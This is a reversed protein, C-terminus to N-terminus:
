ITPSAAEATASKGRHPSRSSGRGRGSGRGMGRGRSPAGGGSSFAGRAQGHASGGRGRGRGAAAPAHITLSPIDLVTVAPPVVSSASTLPPYTAHGSYPRSTSSSSPAAKPKREAVIGSYVRPMDAYPFLKSFHLSDHVPWPSTMVDSRPSPFPTGKETVGDVRKQAALRAEMEAFHPHSTYRSARSTEAGAKKEDIHVGLCGQEYWRIAVGATLTCNHNLVRGIDVLASKIEEASSSDVAAWLASVQALVDVTRAIHAPLVTAVAEKGLEVLVKTSYKALDTKTPKMDDPVANCFHETMPHASRKLIRKRETASIFKDGAAYSACDAKAADQVQQATSLNPPVPPWWTKQFLQPRSGTAWVDSVSGAADDDGSADGEHDAIDDRPNVSPAFGSTPLAELRTVAAETAAAAAIRRLEAM